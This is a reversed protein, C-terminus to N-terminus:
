SLRRRFSNFDNRMEQGYAQGIERATDTLFALEELIIRSPLYRTSVTEIHNIAFVRKWRHIKGLTQIKM